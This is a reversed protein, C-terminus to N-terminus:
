HAIGQGGDIYITEGSLFPIDESFIAAVLKAV